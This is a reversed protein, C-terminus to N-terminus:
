IGPAREFALDLVIQSIECSNGDGRDPELELVPLCRRFFSRRVPGMWPWHLRTGLVVWSTTTLTGVIPDDGHSVRPRAASADSMMTDSTTSFKSSAVLWFPSAASLGVDAWYDQRTLVGRM